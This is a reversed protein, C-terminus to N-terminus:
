NLKGEPFKGIGGSTVSIENFQSLKNGQFVLTNQQQILRVLDESVRCGPASTLHIQWSVWNFFICNKLMGEARFFVSGWPRCRYSPIFSFVGILWLWFDNKDLSIASSAASCGSNTWIGESTVEVHM